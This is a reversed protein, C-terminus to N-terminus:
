KQFDNVIQCEDFAIIREDETMLINNVCDIQQVKSQLIGCQSENCFAEDVNDFLREKSDVILIINVRLGRVKEIKHRLDQSVGIFVICKQNINRQCWIWPWSERNTDDLGNWQSLIGNLDYHTVYQPQPWDDKEDYGMEIALDSYKPKNRREKYIEYVIRGFVGGLGICIGQGILGLRTM